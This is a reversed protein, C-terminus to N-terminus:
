VAAGKSSLAAELEEVTQQLAERERAQGELRVHLDGEKVDKVRQHDDLQVLAEEASGGPGAEEAGGPSGGAGGGIGGAGGEGGRDAGGDGAEAGACSGREGGRRGSGCLHSRERGSWDSDGHGHLLLPM